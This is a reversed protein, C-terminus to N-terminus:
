PREWSAIPGDVVEFLPHVDPTQVDAWRELWGPSRAALKARLHGWEHAVQGTTVEIPAIRFPLVLEGAGDAPLLPRDIKSVDFRYGRASAELAIGSLFAGIAAAPDGHGRFRELQPHDRYGKTRRALVAQALLAERWGGTLGQRDLHRPHLTWLRM